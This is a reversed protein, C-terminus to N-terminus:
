KYKDKPSSKLYLQCVHKYLNFLTEKFLMTYKRCFRRRDIKAVASNKKLNKKQQQQFIFVYNIEPVIYKKENKWNLKKSYKDRIEIDRFFLLFASM